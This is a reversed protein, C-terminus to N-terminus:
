NKPNPPELRETDKNWKWEKGDVNIKNYGIKVNKGKDRENKAIKRIEKSKEREKKTMDNNIYIKEDNIDKLKHKSKMIKEKEEEKEMEILCIKEGLRHAAKIQVKVQLNNEFMNEVAQKLVKKDETDIKIGSMVLNNKRREKELWEVTDSVERLKEKTIKNEQKIEQNEAILLKNEERLKRIEERYEEQDKRIQATEIKLDKVMDILIDLKDNEKKSTKDPTRVIKRSKSFANEEDGKGRKRKTDDTSYEDSDAM